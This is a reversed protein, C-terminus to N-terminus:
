GRWPCNRHGDARHLRLSVPPSVAAAAAPTAEAAEAASNPMAVPQQGRSSTSFDPQKPDSHDAVVNMVEDEM